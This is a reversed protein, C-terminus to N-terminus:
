SPRPAESSEGSEAHLEVDIESVLQEFQSMPKGVLSMSRLLEGSSVTQLMESRGHRNYDEVSMARWDPHPRDSCLEWEHDKSARKHVYVGVSCHLGEGVFSEAVIRVESGDKREILQTIKIAEQETSM